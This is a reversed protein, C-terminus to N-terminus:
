LAGGGFTFVTASRYDSGPRVVTSPFNPQNPSDPFHQTEFCFGSRKGYSRGGKGHISGDLFNGSYFQMGPETTAVELTRGTLPDVARAAPCLGAGERVLVLTHDYGRGRGIQEHADDIRAGIRTPTRFDFPTGQVSALEGTPILTADVPVFRDANIWVEHDLVDDAQRGSLNFYSHQTLNIITPRTTAAHYEVKLENRDNLTYTVTVTVEGPYGEEGDASVYKLTVGTGQPGQFATATWIVKDFGKVGGHLHNPGNNTALRYTSGDLTFQGRAIRNGYRGVVSGFYRSRTLYGALDDFGHVIDDIAGGRDATRIAAITAGYTLVDVEVGTRNGVTIRDVNKGEPTQGFSVRTLKTV